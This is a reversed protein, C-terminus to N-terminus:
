CPCPSSQGLTCEMGGLFDDDTLEASKNDIDYAGFKLKQVKEFYYDVLLKKSFEPDQCNKIRETRDLEAWRCGGEDQLLVCLPDSKSGVDRDLLRRCAV